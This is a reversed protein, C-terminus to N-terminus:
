YGQLKKGHQSTISNYLKYILIFLKIKIINTLLCLVTVFNVCINKPTVIKWEIHCFNTLCIKVVFELSPM